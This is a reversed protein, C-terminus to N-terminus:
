FFDLFFRVDEENKSKNEDDIYYYGKNDSDGGFLLICNFPIKIDDIFYRFEDYTIGYVDMYILRCKIIKQYLVTNQSVKIKKIHIKKIWFPINLQETYKLKTIIIIEIYDAIELINFDKSSIKDIVM